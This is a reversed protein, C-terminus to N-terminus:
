KSYLLKMQINWIFKNTNLFIKKRNIQNIFDDLQLHLNSISLNLNIEKPSEVILNYGVNRNEDLGDIPQYCSSNLYVNDNEWIISGKEGIIEIKRTKNPYRWSSFFTTVHKDSIVDLFLTDPQILNNFSNLIHGGIINTEEPEFLAQYLYLDHIAYDEIISVDTRIRPGMSAREFRSYIIEGLEKKDLVSKIFKFQPSSLFIYGPFCNTFEDRNSIGCPKEILINLDPIDLQSKLNSHLEANTAIIAHTYEINVEEINKFLPVNVEIVPNPDVVGVLEYSSSLITKYWNKGWYGCGILLIKNM